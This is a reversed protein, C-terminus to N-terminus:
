SGLANALARLQSVQWSEFSDYQAPVTETVEVVPVGADDAQGRLQDPVAGETQTNFFLVAMARDDLAQEFEHLDGPSPEAENAAAREYGDPTANRMGLADAMYDFVGETAGFPKDAAIPELRDLEARYPQMSRLWSRHNRDFYSANDPEIEELTTTVADAVAFVHDPAYWVHPNDGRELGAVAGANVVEPRRDLAAVAQDAWPDYDLGNVVVLAADEFAAADAPTPEYDHPDGSSGGIITTVRGCGGAIRGVIDGWQDVSVVVSVPATPCEGGETGTTVQAGGDSSGCGSLVLVGVLGAYLSYRAKRLITRM